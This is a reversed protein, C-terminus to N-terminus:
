SESALGAARRAEGGDIPILYVSNTKEEGRKALFAIRRSDATWRVSEVNVKGTVFPRPGGDSGDVVWLETWPEGDPEVGAQRPVSLVYAMRSGDPAAAVATVQRLDAVRHPALVEPSAGACSWTAAVRTLPLLLLCWGFRLLLPMTM